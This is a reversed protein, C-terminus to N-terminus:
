AGAQARGHRALWADMDVVYLDGAPVPHALDAADCQWGELVKGVFLTLAFADREPLAVLVAKM